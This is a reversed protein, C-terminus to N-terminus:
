TVRLVEGMVRVHRTAGPEEAALEHRAQRAGLDIVSVIQAGPYVPRDERGLVSLEVLEVQAYTRLGYETRARKANFGISVPAGVRLLDAAIASRAISHDLRFAAVHWGGSRSLSELYGVPRRHDHRLIVPVRTADQGVFVDRDFRESVREHEDHWVDLATVIPAIRAVYQRDYISM